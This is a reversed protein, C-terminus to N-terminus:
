VWKRGGTGFLFAISGKILIKIFYIFLFFSLLLGTIFFLINLAVAMILLAKGFPSADEELIELLVEIYKDIIEILKAILEKM